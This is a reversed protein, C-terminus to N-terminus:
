VVISVCRPICLAINHDIKSPSMQISVFDQSAHDIDVESRSTVFLKLRRPRDPNYILLDRLQQLIESRDGSEDLADLVVFTTRSRVADRSFLNGLVNQLEQLTAFQKLRKKYANKLLLLVEESERGLQCLQQVLGRNIAIATTKPKDSEKDDRFITSM